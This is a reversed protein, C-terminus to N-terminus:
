SERVPFCTTSISRTGCWRYQSGYADLIVWAPGNERDVGRVPDTRTCLGGWPSTMGISAEGRVGALGRNFRGLTQKGGPCPPAGPLLPNVVKGSALIKEIESGEDSGTAIEPVGSPPLEYIKFEEGVRGLPVAQMLTYVARTLGEWNYDAQLKLLQYVAELRYPSGELLTKVSLTEVSTTFKATIRRLQPPACRSCVELILRDGVGHPLYVLAPANRAAFFEWL